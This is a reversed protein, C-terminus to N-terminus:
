VRTGNNYWITYGAKPQTSGIVTSTSNIFSQSNETLDIQAYLTTYDNENCTVVSTQCRIKSSSFYPFISLNLPNRKDCAYYFDIYTKDNYKVVRVKTILNVSANHNRYVDRVLRVNDYDNIMKLLLISDGYYSYGSGIAIMM